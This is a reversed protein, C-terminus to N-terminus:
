SFGYALVKQHYKKPPLNGLSEHPRQENYDNMFIECLTRVQNLDDFYHADLVESRFSRNFREIFANQMPKGPQIFQLKIGNDRCWQQMVEAIFEPGNDVRICAPKGRELILRSLEKVVMKSGISFYPEIRLAERNYDDIINIVRFKRGNTLNDHMFDMSWCENPRKPVMLPEKVRAPLRKRKPVRKNLGLMRYVREIRKHNWPIGEARIRRYYKGQGESVHKEALQKLKEIVITDDKQSVYYYLSRSLNM